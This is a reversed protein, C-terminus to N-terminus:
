LHLRLCSLHVASGQDLAHRRQGEGRQAGGGGADGDCAFRGQTDDHRERGAAAGVHQATDDRGRQFARELTRDDDLVLGAGAAHQAGIVGGVAGLVAADQQERSQDRRHAVVSTRRFLHEPLQRRDARDSARGVHHGDVAVQGGFGQAFKDGLGPAGGLAQGESRGAVGRRLMQGGLQQLGGAADVHEM